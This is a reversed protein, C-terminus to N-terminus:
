LVEMQICSLLNKYNTWRPELHTLECQLHSVV